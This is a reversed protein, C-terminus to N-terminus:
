LRKVQEHVLQEFREEAFHRYVNLEFAISTWRPAGTADRGAMMELVYKPSSDNLMKVVRYWDAGESPITGEWVILNM